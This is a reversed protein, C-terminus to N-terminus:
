QKRNATGKLAIAKRFKAQEKRKSINSRLALKLRNERSLAKASQEQPQNKKEM